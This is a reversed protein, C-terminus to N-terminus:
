DECVEREGVSSVPTLVLMFHTPTSIRLGQGQTDEIPVGGEGIADCSYVFPGFM